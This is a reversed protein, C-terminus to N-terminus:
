KWFSLWFNLLRSIISCLFNNLLRQFSGFCHLKQFEFFFDLNFLIYFMLSSLLYEIECVLIILLRFNGNWRVNNNWSVLKLNLLLVYEIQIEDLWIRTQCLKIKKVYINMWIMHSWLEGFFKIKKKNPKSIKSYFLVPNEDIYNWM